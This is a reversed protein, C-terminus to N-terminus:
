KKKYLGKIRQIYQHLSFSQLDSQFDCILERKCKQFLKFIKILESLTLFFEEKYEKTKYVETTFVIDLIDDSIVRESNPFREDEVVATIIILHYLTASYLEEISCDCDFFPSETITLVGFSTDEKLLSTELKKFEDDTM